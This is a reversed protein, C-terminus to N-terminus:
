FSSFCESRLDELRMWYVVCAGKGECASTGAVANLLKPLLPDADVAAANEATAIKNYMSGCKGDEYDNSVPVCAKKSHRNSFESGSDPSLPRKSTPMLRSIFRDLLRHTLRRRVLVLRPSSSLFM